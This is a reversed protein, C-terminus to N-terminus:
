NKLAALVEEGSKRVAPDATKALIRRVHPELFRDYRVLRKMAADRTPPDAAGRGLLAAEIAAETEPTMYEIRGVLVRVIEDPAPTIALPLLADVEARPVSYIIRTGESGFWARSWTKVMAEAEDRHLGSAVLADAVAA